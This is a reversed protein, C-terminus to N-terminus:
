RVTQEATFAFNEYTNDAIRSWLFAADRFTKWPGYITRWNENTRALEDYFAHAAKWGEAMIERPFPRLQAGAAVMRRIAAPNNADYKALMDRDSEACASELIARYSAPLEAFKAKNIFFTLAAGGEWFAPYYYFPAVRTLGLKEDDYPGVWEAADITGRELAPYIDSAPLQQTVVGIRALVQGALGGIRFKLGRMDAMGRLERRFFGGMQTGTNGCNFGVLNFKDYFADILAQGGGHAKWANHQRATLGFPIATDFALTPDKGVYYYSATHACEVTGAQAADFAALPPAVEGGPFVRIQFKGDTAAAVRRSVLEAAGFVTDLSRPWSTTCRWRIEPMTQAIAPAALAATAALGAGGAKLISRRDM